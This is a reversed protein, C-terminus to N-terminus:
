QKLDLAGLICALLNAWATDNPPPTVTTGSQRAKQGILKSPSNLMQSLQMPKALIPLVPGKGSARGKGSEGKAAQLRQNKGKSESKKKGRKEKEKTEEISAGHAAKGDEATRSGEAAVALREEETEIKKVKAKKKVPKRKLMCNEDLNSARNATHIFDVTQYTRFTSRYNSRQPHVYAAFIVM